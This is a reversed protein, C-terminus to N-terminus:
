QQLREYDQQADVDTDQNQLSELIAKQKQLLRHQQM